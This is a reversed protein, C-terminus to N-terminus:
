LCPLSLRLPPVCASLSVRPFLSFVVLVDNRAEAALTDQFNFPDPPFLTEIYNQYVM